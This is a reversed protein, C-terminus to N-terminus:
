QADAQAFLKACASRGCRLQPRIATALATTAGPVLSSDCAFGRAETIAHFRSSGGRPMSRLRSRGDFAVCGARISRENSTVM